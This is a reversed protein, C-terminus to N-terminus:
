VESPLPVDSLILESQDLGQDVSDNPRPGAPSAPQSDQATVLEPPFEIIALYAALRGVYLFDAVAFYLLAVVLVGGVAVAPPFIAAFSLPVAVISSAAFFVVFHAL